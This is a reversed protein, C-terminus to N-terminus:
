SKHQKRGNGQKFKQRELNQKSVAMFLLAHVSSIKSIRM